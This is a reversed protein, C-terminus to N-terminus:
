EATLDNFGFSLDLAPRKDTVPVVVPKGAPKTTLELASFRKKGIMKEIETIGLLKRTFAADGLEQEMKQEADDRWKRVSRGEVLKYGEFERGAHLEGEVYQEIGKLWSEILTKNQLAFRLQDNTLTKVEPLDLDPFQSVVAEQTQEYLAPCTAKAKCFRCATISPTLPADPELTAAARERIWDAFEGLKGKTITWRDYHDKRPQVIHMTIQAIHPFEKYWELYAGLAYLQMQINNEAPVVLGMGYKYDVVHLTSGKLALVDSTGRGDPVYFSYDVGKEVEFKECKEKTLGQSELYDLSHACALLMEENMFEDNPKATIAGKLVLEEMAEHYRSGEQAFLSEQDPINAEMRISGACNAWRHAGSAGRVSHEM